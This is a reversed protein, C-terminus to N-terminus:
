KLTEKLPALEEFNKMKYKKKMRNLIISKVKVGRMLEHLISVEGRLENIEKEIKDKWSPKKNTRRYTYNKPKGNLKETVVYAGAYIVENINELTEECERLIEKTAIKAKNILIRARKDSRIKCLKEKEDVSM